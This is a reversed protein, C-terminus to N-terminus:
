NEPEHKAYYYMIASVFVSLSFFAILRESITYIHEHVFWLGVFWIVVCLLPVLISGSRKHQNHIFAYVHSRDQISGYMTEGEILFYDKAQRRSFFNRMQRRKEHWAVSGPVLSKTELKTGM